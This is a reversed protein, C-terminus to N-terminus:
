FDVKGSKGGNVVYYVAGDEPKVYLELTKVPEGTWTALVAEVAEQESIQRGAYQIYLKVEPAASKRSTAARKKAPAKAAKDVVKEVEALATKEATKPGAKETKVGSALPEAKKNIMAM